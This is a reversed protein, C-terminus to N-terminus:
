MMRNEPYGMEKDLKKGMAQQMGAKVGKPHHPMASHIDLGSTELPQKQHSAQGETPYDFVLDIDDVPNGGRPDNPGYVKGGTPTACRAATTSLCRTAPCFTSQLAFRVTRASTPKIHLM